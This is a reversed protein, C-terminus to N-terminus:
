EFKRVLYEFKKRSREDIPLRLYRELDERGLKAGKDRFFKALTVRAGDKYNKLKVEDGEGVTGELIVRFYAGPRNAKNFKDCFNKQKIASSLTRCPIRPATVQIQLDNFVLVDGICIASFDIGSIILNEGFAGPQLFTNLSRRWFKYDATSYAYIAQDKGGHHKRNCIFDGQLGEFGVQVRRSQPKKYIGTKVKRQLAALPQEAVDAVNVSVVRM